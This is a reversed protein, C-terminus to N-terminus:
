FGAPKFMIVAISREERPVNSRLVRGPLAHSVRNQEEDPHERKLWGAIQEPSWM